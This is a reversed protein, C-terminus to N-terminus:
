EKVDGNTAAGNTASTIRPNTEPLDRSVRKQKWPWNPVRCCGGSRINFSVWNTIYYKQVKM